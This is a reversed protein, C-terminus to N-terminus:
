RRMLTHVEQQKEGRSPDVRMQVVVGVDLAGGGVCAHSFRRHEGARERVMLKNEYANNARAIDRRM